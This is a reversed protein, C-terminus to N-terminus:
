IQKKPKINRNPSM